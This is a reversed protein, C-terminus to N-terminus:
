LDALSLFSRVEHHKEAPGVRWPRELLNDYTKLYAATMRAVSFEASLAREKARAGLRLRLREDEILQVLADVWDRPNRPSLFLAAGEWTSRLSPIDALALACGAAAAELIALGFPEYLAPAAYIGAGGLVLKMDEPGLQGLQEVNQMCFGPEHDPPESLGAVKIPWPIRHAIVDLLALNKAEDWLRGASLIYERKSAAGLQGVDRGNRIAPLRFFPGYWQELEDLMLESIGTVGTAGALGESVARRYSEWEGGPPRGKVSSFWSYVCSHAVVLVPAEFGASTYCYENLHVVDPQFTRELRSLWRRTAEVDSWPDQMWELRAERFELTLGSCSEADRRQAEDIRPGVAALLVEVGEAILGRALDLGYTWVGGVTDVTMLVKGVARSREDTSAGETVGHDRPRM